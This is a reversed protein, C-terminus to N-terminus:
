QLEKEAADLAADIPAYSCTEGHKEYHGCGYCQWQFGISPPVRRWPREVAARVIAILVPAANVAAIHGESPKMLDPTAKAAKADLDDLWAKLASM